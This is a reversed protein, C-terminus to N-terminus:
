NKGLATAIQAATQITRALVSRIKGDEMELLGGITCGGPTAVANRILAPNQGAQVMSATGLMTQAVLDEAQQRPIGMMVGGDTLSELIVAMFAPGSGCLATAADIHKEDMILTKGVQKFIWSVMELEQEAVGDGSVIVSMGQRIRSPTNPMVRIVKSDPLFGQLTSITTGALISMVVKGKLAQAMAPETLLDRAVQPKCGLLVYDAKSAAEANASAGYSVTVADGFLEKLKKAAEPRKVCASFISPAVLPEQDASGENISLVSASLSDASNREADKLADLVGSLISRGMTGCALACLIKEPMKTCLTTSTNSDQSDTARM